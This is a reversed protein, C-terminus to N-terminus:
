AEKRNKSQAQYSPVYNYLTKLLAANDHEKTRIDEVFKEIFKMEHGNEVKAKFVKKYNTPVVEDEKTLLEEYLKEGPRLGTVVVSTRGNGFRKILNQAFDYIRVPKGMDLVMVEGGHAVASSLFVLSVAEPITMFYRIIDKHTVTIPLGRKIQELFLPLMSGRSGLVNGFRVSVIETTENSFASAILEAMRKTAGMVNSPNVAKDTSILIVKQVKAKVASSLVNYSGVINTRMAEEPFYEMLPVHKYAAAHFIIDPKYQQLVSDVKQADRIDGVIPIIMNSFATAYNNLALSLNHIETEDIDLIIIKEPNYGLLQRSIESGISGGAGTILITKGEVLGIIPEKDIAIPERGLLDNVDIDRLETVKAQHEEIEFLSPVIKIDVDFRNAIDLIKDIRNKGIKVSAIIITKVELRAIQEELSGIGGLVEFGHLLLHHKNFDDDIIGVFKYELLDRRYMRLLQDGVEGAGYLLTRSCNIHNTDLFRYGGSIRFIVRYSFIALISFAWYPLLLHLINVGGGSQTYMLVLTFFDGIALPLGAQYILELSVQRLSIKYLRTYIFLCIQVAVSVLVTWLQPYNPKIGWLYQNSIYYTLTWSFLLLLIDILILMAYKRLRRFKFKM